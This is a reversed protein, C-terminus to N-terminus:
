GLNMLQTTVYRPRMDQAATCADQLAKETYAFFGYQGSQSTPEV